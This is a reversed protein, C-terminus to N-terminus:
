TFIFVRDILMFQHFVYWQPPLSIPRMDLSVHENESNKLKSIRSNSGSEGHNLLRTEDDATQEASYYDSHSIINNPPQPKKRRIHSNVKSIQRGFSHRYELYIDTHDRTSM